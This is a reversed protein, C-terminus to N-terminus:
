SSWGSCGLRQFASGRLRMKTGNRDSDVFDLWWGKVPGMFLLLARGVMVLMKDDVGLVM